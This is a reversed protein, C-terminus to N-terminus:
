PHVGSSVFVIYNSATSIAIGPNGAINAVGIIVGIKPPPIPLAALNPVTIKIQAGTKLNAIRRNERESDAATKEPGTMEEVLTGVVKHHYPPVGSVFMASEDLTHLTETGPNFQGAFSTRGYRLIMGTANDTVCQKPLTTMSEFGNPMDM